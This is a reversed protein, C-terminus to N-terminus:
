LGFREQDVLYNHRIEEATLERDYFRICYIDATTTFDGFLYRSGTLLVIPRSVNETVTQEYVIEGKSYVARYGNDFVASVSALTDLYFGKAGPISSRINNDGCVVYLESNNNQWTGSSAHIGNDFLYLRGDVSNRRIAVVEWTFCGGNIIDTLVSEDIVLNCKNLYACNDGWTFSFSESSKFNEPVAVVGSVVDRWVTAQPNHIGLRTNWEGDWMYCLGDTIYPNDFDQETEMELGNSAILSEIPKGYGAMGIVTLILTTLLRKM